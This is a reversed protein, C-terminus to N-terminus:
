LLYGILTFKQSSFLNQYDSIQFSLNYKKEMNM